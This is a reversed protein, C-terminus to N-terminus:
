GRFGPDNQVGQERPAPFGEGTVADLIPKLLEALEPHEPAYKAVHAELAPQETIQAEVIAVILGACSPAASPRPLVVVREGLAIRWTEGTEYPAARSPEPLFFFTHFSELIEATMEHIFLNGPLEDGIIQKVHHSPLEQFPVEDGTIFLYGKRQRKELCDMSTHRSAFYMALGYSEGLGGGGSELHVASLWQDMLEATSEFQGVQLPSRDTYANGFAMFLVQADPLVNLVATMFEPMTDTAMLHPIDEMSASVDLAFIIGVSNPHQESDRSERTVSFPLMRADCSRQGFVEERSLDARDQTIREHARASYDGYGM